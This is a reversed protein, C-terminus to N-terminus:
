SDTELARTVSPTFAIIIGLIALAVLVIGITREVGGTAQALPWGVILAIFQAVLFPARAWRIRRLWAYSVALLGAGFLAFIIIQLMLAPANSVEAPGTTGITVAGYIDFVAYGLLALGQLLAIASLVRLRSM